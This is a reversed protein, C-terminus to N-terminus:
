TPHGETDDIGPSKEVPIQQDLVKVSETSDHKDKQHAPSGTRDEQLNSRRTSNVSLNELGEDQNPRKAGSM